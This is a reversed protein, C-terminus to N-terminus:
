TDSNAHFSESPRKEMSLMARDDQIVKLFM